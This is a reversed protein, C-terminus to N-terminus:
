ITVIFSFAIESMKRMKKLSYIVLAMPLPYHIVSNVSESKGRNNYDIPQKNLIM